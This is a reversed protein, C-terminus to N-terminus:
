GAGAREEKNPMGSYTAPTIFFQSLSFASGGVGILSRYGCFAHDALRLIFKSKKEYYPFEVNQWLGQIKLKEM